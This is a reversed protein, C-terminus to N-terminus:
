STFYKAQPTDSLEKLELIPGLALNMANKIRQRILKREASPMDSKKM